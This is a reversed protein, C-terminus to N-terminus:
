LTGMSHAILYKPLTPYVKTVREVLLKLDTINSLWGDKKGFYGLKYASAGHGRNDFVLVAYNNEILYKALTEYRKKHEMMGGIIVVLALPNDIQYFDAELNYNDIPSIMSITEKKM